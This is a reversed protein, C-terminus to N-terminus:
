AFMSHVYRTLGSWIGPWKTEANSIASKLGTAGELYAGRLDAGRLDAGELNAMSLNADTLNAMLLNASGLNAGRLNAGRLDAGELNAKELNAMFLNVNTFNAGQLNAGKLNAGVLDALTLIAGELNAKWLYASRLCAFTLNARTLIAGELNAWSLDASGLLAKCLIIKRFDAGELKANLINVKFEDPVEQGDRLAASAGRSKALIEEYHERSFRGDMALANTGILLLALSLIQKKMTDKHNIAKRLVKKDRLTILLTTTTL